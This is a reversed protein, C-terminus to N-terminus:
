PRTSKRKSPCFGPRPGLAPFMRCVQPRREYLVCLRNKDLVVCDGNPRQELTFLGTRVRFSRVVGQDILKKAIKRVSWRVEDATILEMRQLDAVSVEVPLTCCLGHCGQCMSQKYRLWTSPRGVDVESM